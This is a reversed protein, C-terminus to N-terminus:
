KQRFDVENAVMAWRPYRWPRLAGEASPWVLVGSANVGAVEVSRTSALHVRTFWYAKVGPLLVVECARCKALHQLVHGAMVPPPFCLGFAPAVGGPLVAVDQAFVDVGASGACHYRSSFPLAAGTLPSHQASWTCAMLDINFPGFEESLGRFAAPTM